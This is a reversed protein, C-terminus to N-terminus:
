FASMRSKNKKSPYISTEWCKKGTKIKIQKYKHRSLKFKGLIGEGAGGRTKTNTGPYNSTEWFKQKQRFLNFNGLIGKRKKVKKIKNKLNTGPYSSTEWFEQGRGQRRSRNM